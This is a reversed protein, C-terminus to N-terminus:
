TYGIPWVNRHMPLRRAIDRPTTPRRLSRIFASTTRTTSGTRRLDHRHWCSMGSNDMLSKTALDRNTLPTVSGAARM